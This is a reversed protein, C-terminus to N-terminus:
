VMSLQKIPIKNQVFLVILLMPFDVIIIIIWGGDRVWGLGGARRFRGGERLGVKWNNNYSLM